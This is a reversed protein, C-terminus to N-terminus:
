KSRLMAVYKQPVFLEAHCYFLKNAIPAPFTETIKFGFPYFFEPIICVLYLDTKSSRILEAVIAKGIGRNREGEVVGLSCLETCDAYTRLRGFGLLENDNYAAIFQEKKLARNDLSYERIFTCILDFEKDTPEKLQINSLPM